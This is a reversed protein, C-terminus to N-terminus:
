IRPTVRLEPRPRPSEDVAAPKAIGDIVAVFRATLSALEQADAAALRYSPFKPPPADGKIFRWAVDDQPMPHDYTYSFAHLHAWLAAVYTRYRVWVHNELSFETRLMAGARRGRDSLRAIAAKSMSLNLGGEEPRQTVHVIRNRYGPMRAALNDHWAQMSDILASLFGGIQRTASGADFRNWRPQLGAGNSSPLWVFDAEKQFDPHPGKLNVAFTPWRPLPADFLHVPFNSTLGGDSFWCREATRPAGDALHQNQTRTFDVAWLPVASFLGPFSLSMRVAVIVPLDAEPVRYLELGEATVVNPMGDQPLRVLYDIVEGPFFERWEDPAFYFTAAEEAPFPLRHPRGHTLNTTMVELNIARENGTVDNCVPAEHLHRFTLPEGSPLGAIENLLSYLWNVLPPRGIPHGQRFGSCLGFRNRRLLAPLTTAAAVISSLTIAALVWMAGLVLAATTSAIGLRWLVTPVIAGLAAGIATSKYYGKVLAIWIRAGAQIPNTSEAVSRVADFLPRTPADPTFLSVLFGPAGLRDPLQRVIDFGQTSGHRRRYEAAATAAAAIAGASTGGISKITFKTALEVVTLPYVVGSTVGGKMVIDCYETPLTVDAM